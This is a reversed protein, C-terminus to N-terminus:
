EFSPQNYQWNESLIGSIRKDKFPQSFTSKSSPLSFTLTKELGLWLMNRTSIFELVGSLRPFMAVAVNHGIRHQGDAIFRPLTTTRRASAFCCINRTNLFMKKEDVLLTARTSEDAISSGSHTTTKDPGSITTNCMRLIRLIHTICEQCRLHLYFINTPTASTKKRTINVRRLKGVHGSDETPRKSPHKPEINREPHMRVM